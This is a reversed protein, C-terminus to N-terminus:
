YLLMNEYGCIWFLFFSYSLSLSVVILSYRPLCKRHYSKPCRRCVAFQLQPDKNKEGQKCVCCKHIPCTFSEGAAIKKELEEIAVENGQHLLKAVCRPHYFHGCTASVCQFVQAISLFKLAM